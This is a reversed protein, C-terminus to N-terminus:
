DLPARRFVAQRRADALSPPWFRSRGPPPASGRDCFGISTLVDPTAPWMREGLTVGVASSPHQYLM